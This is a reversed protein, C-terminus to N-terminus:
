YVTNNQGVWERMDTDSNMSLLCFITNNIELRARMDVLSM